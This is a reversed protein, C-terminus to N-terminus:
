RRRIAGTLDCEVIRRVELSTVTSLCEAVPLATRACLEDLTASGDSLAGWILSEQTGCLAPSVRVPPELGVLRLADAVSTIVHAGDRLLENVGQSQPADIPGPIGAVDRGLELADKATILAGSRQPAEVVITLSALAAIIRNRRPFSGPGSKAGPPLESIILGREAIERHLATHAVPYPVNAGTGLVAVTAGDAELAARHACADIGLAMGSVICAGERALASAIERTIRQGYQTARRTGVIAVLPPRVTSWSGRSWLVPPPDYLNQLQEPYGSDGITTLALGAAAAARLADDARAYAGAAAAAPVAQALAQSASRFTASLQRHTVSGVDAVFSLALIARREADDPSHFPTTEDSV